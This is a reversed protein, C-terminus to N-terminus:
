VSLPIFRSSGSIVWIGGPTPLSRKKRGLGISTARPMQDGVEYHRERLRKEFITGIILRRRMEKVLRRRIAM